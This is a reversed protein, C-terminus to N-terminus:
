KKGSLTQPRLVKKADDTAPLQRAFLGWGLFGLGSHVALILGSMTLLALGSKFLPIGALVMMGIGVSSITIACALIALGVGIGIKAALQRKAQQCKYAGIASLSWTAPKIRYCAYM